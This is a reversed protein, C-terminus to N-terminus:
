NFWRSQNKSDLKNVSKAMVCRFNKGYTVYVTYSPTHVSRYDAEHMHTTLHTLLQRSKGSRDNDTKDKHQETLRIVLVHKENKPIVITRTIKEQEVISIQGIINRAVPLEPSNNRPVYKKLAFLKNEAVTTQKTISEILSYLM